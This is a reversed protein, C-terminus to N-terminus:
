KKITDAVLQFKIPLNFECSVPGHKDEAPIWDPMISVVRIAESDLAPNVGKLLQVQEIKGTKSIIYHIFVTGSIGSKRASEPYKINGTLYKMFSGPSGPFSAAALQKEKACSAFMLGTGIIAMMKKMQTKM